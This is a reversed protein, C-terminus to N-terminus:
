PQDRIDRLRANEESHRITRGSQMLNSSPPAPSRRRLWDDARKRAIALQEPTMHSAVQQALAGQGNRGLLLWVYATVYDRAAGIGNAYMYGLQARVRTIDADSLLPTLQKLAEGSVFDGAQHAVVYWAYAQVLDREVAKGEALMAAYERQAFVHGNRAAMSLWRASESFSPASCPQQARALQYQAAVHGEGASRELWRRAHQCDIPADEGAQHAKGLPYRM